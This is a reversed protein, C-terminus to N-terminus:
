SLTRPAAIIFTVFFQCEGKILHCIDLLMSVRLNKKTALSINSNQEEFIVIQWNIM